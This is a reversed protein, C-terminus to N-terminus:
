IKARPAEQLQLNILFREGFAVKSKRFGGAKKGIAQRKFDGVGIGRGGRARERGEEIGVLGREVDIQGDGFEAVVAQVYGDGFFFHIDAVEGFDHIQAVFIRAEHFFGHLNSALVQAKQDLAFGAFAAVRELNRANLASGRAGEAEIRM